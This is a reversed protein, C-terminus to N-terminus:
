YGSGRNEAMLRMKAIGSLRQRSSRGIAGDFRLPAPGGPPLM